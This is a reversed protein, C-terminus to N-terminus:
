GTSIDKIIQFLCCGGCTHCRNELCLKTIIDIIKSSKNHEKMKNGDM